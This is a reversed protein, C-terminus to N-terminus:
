LITKSVGWASVMLGPSKFLKILTRDRTPKNGTAKVDCKTEKAFDYMLNNDSLSALDAKYNKITILKLLEGKSEFEKGSDRFTLM